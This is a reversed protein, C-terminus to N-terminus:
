LNFLSFLSSTYIYESASLVSLAVTRIIGCVGTFVGLSLGCAITIKEKRKMKLKWLVFWPLIAFSFDAAVFWSGVTYGVKSFDLWCSGPVTPNWSKEVPVCQVIVTVTSFVIIPVTAAICLWIFWIQTKNQVIRLLLMGVALKKVATFYTAPYEAEAFLRGLSYTTAITVFITYLIHVALAIVTLYDDPGVANLIEKRTYLRLGVFVSFIVFEVWLIANTMPGLGGYAGLSIVLDCYISVSCLLPLRYLEWIYELPIVFLLHLRQAKLGSKQVSM